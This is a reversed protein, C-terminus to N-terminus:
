PGVPGTAAPAPAAVPAVAAVPAAIVPSAKAAASANALTTATTNSGQQSVVAGFTVGTAVGIMGICTAGDIIGKVALTVAAAVVLIIVTIHAIFTQLPTMKGGFNLTFNVVVEVM